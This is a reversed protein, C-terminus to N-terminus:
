PKFNTMKASNLMGAKESLMKTKLQEAEKFTLGRLLHELPIPTTKRQLKALSHNEPLPHAADPEYFLLDAPDCNFTRCIIELDSLSLMRTASTRYKNAAHRSLGAKMLFTFPNTIGRSQLVPLLNFSLM